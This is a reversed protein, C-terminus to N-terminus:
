KAKIRELMNKFGDLLGATFNRADQTFLGQKLTKSNKAIGNTAQKIIKASVIKEGTASVILGVFHGMNSTFSLVASHILNGASSDKTACVPLASFLLGIFLFSFVLKYTKM